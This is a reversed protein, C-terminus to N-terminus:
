ESHAFNDFSAFEGIQIMTINIAKAHVVSDSDNEVVHDFEFVLILCVAEDSFIMVTM